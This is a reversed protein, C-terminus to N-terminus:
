GAQNAQVRDPSGSWRWAVSRRSLGLLMGGLAPPHIFLTDAGRGPRKEFPVDPTTAIGMARAREEIEATADTEAFAMYLSDGFRAHFRGMTKERDHPHIVEFRHLRDPHFLTLSGAYGYAESEIPVFASADLAFTRAASETAASADQVLHTVEYFGDIAGVRALAEEPSVVVRFGRGGTAAPDLHLQQGERVAPVSQTRLHAELADLDPTAAGIGFLHAGRTAVADSVAGAGDPVLFEVWGDGLRYGFRKAGLCAVRDQRAPEAGLLAVWGAAAMAADPVAMQVRDIRTLM